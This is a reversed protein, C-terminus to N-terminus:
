LYFSRFHPAISLRDSSGLTQEALFREFENAVFPLNESKKLNKGRRRPLRTSGASRASQFAIQASRNSITYVHVGHYVWVEHTNCKRGTM